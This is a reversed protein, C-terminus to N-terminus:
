NKYDVSGYDLRICIAFPLYNYNLRICQVSLTRICIASPLLLKFNDQLPHLSLKDVSQGLDFNSGLTFRSLLTISNLEPFCFASPFIELPFLMQFYHGVFGSDLSFASYFATM